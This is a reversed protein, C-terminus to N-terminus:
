RMQHKGLGSRLKGLPVHFHRACQPVNPSVVITAVIFIRHTPGDFSSPVKPHERNVQVKWLTIYHDSTM